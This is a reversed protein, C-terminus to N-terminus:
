YSYTAHWYAYKATTEFGAFLLIFADSLVERPTLQNSGDRAQVLLTLLDKKSSTTETSAQEILQNLKSEFTCFAQDVSKVYSIPLKFMVKPLALRLVLNKSVLRLAEHFSMEKSPDNPEFIDHVDMGFGARSIVGLTLSKLPDTVDVTTTGTAGIDNDWKKM